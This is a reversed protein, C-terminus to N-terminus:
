NSLQQAVSLLLSAASDLIAFFRNESQGIDGNSRAATRCSEALACRGVAGLEVLVRLPL